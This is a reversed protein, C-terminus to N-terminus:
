LQRLSVDTEYVVRESIIPTKNFYGLMRLVESSLVQSSMPSRQNTAPYAIGKLLVPWNWNLFSNKMLSTVSRSAHCSACDITGPHHRLPNEISFAVKAVALIQEQSWSKKAKDSNELFQFYSTMGVPQPTIKTFTELSGLKSSSVLQSKKDVGPISLLEMQFNKIAHGAFVWFNGLPNVIMFTIRVLNQKGIFHLLWNTFNQWYISNYGYARLKPSVQLPLLQRFDKAGQFQQYASLLASWESRTLSYFTHISADLTSVQSERIVLPQWVLRVQAQCGQPTSTEANCPDLRIAVVKWSQQYLKQADMGPVINPLRQYFEQPLLEGKSQSSQPHLMLRIEQRSPLPFLHTLDNATLNQFNQAKALPVLLLALINLLFGKM